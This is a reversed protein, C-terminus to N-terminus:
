RPSRPSTRAGGSRPGVERGLRDPQGPQQVPQHRVVGLHGPQEGQHQQGVGAPRRPGVGSPDSTGSSSCSRLRQSAASIASPTASIVPSARRRGPRARVLQLRRDGRHVVLRRSAASVSQGCIRANYSRARAADRRTRHHGEVPRHRDRHDVPRPGAQGSSPVSSSSSRIARLWRRSATRAWRSSSAPSTSPPGRRRVQARRPQGRAQRLLAVEQEAGGGQAVSWRGRCRHRWSPTVGGKPGDGAHLPDATPADGEHRCRACVGHVFRPGNSRTVSFM